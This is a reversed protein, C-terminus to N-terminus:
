PLHLWVDVHQITVFGFQLNTYETQQQLLKNTHVVTRTLKSPQFFKLCQVLTKAIKIKWISYKPILKTEANNLEKWIM